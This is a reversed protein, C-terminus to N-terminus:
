PGGETVEDFLEIAAAAVKPYLRLLEELRKEVIRLDVNKQRLLFQVHPRDKSRGAMFKMVLLDEPGLADATLKKGSFFRRLRARFSSPIYLTYASFHSNLWDLGINLERGVDQIQEEIDSLDTGPAIADVDTTSNGYEYAGVLAGGGGVILGYTRSEGQVLKGDLLTLAQNVLRADIKKDM